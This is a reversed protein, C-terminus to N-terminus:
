EEATRLITAVSGGPLPRGVIAATAALLVAAALYVAGVIAWPVVLIPVPVIPAGSSGLLTSPVILWGLVLGVATGGAVGVGLLFAQEAVLWTTLQRGSLGLARLLAFETLRERVSVSAAVIFGVIAFAAAALSGLLLAGLTGLGIPDRELASLVAARDVVAQTHFPPSMVTSAVQASAGPSTALWWESASTVSGDAVYRDVALTPGDIIAFPTGPDITPFEPSHGVIRLSLDNGASRVQVTQDVTSGSLALLGDSAVAPISAEAPVDVVFRLAVDGLIPSDTSALLSVVGTGTAIVREQDFSDKERWAWDSATGLDVPAWSGADPSRSTDLGSVHISGKIPNSSFFAGFADRMTVELGILMRPEAPATPGAAEGGNAGGPTVGPGLPVVFSQGRGQFLASEQSVLPNFRAIGGDADRVVASVEIGRYDAPVKTTVTHGAYDTVMIGEETLAADLDIRLWRAGDPLPVGAVDPRAAALAALAAPLESAEPGPPLSAVGTLTRTDPELLVGSRVVQGVALDRRVVAAAGTVGPIARYATGLAWDPLSTSAAPMVRVDAGAQYAAQDAHSAAWTAAYVAGFTGLATALMLLLAARTYRLPRRAVQRAALPSVLGTARGLIREGIEGLRPVLRTALLGGAVLGFAPAAVLLPDLGLAGGVGRTFPSGYTRLQWVVVAAVAILAVDIGLRQALTRAVPRGLLARIGALEAGAGLAPLALVITEVLGTAGAAFLTSPNATADAVAGTTALPGFRGVLGVVAAALFPAALAAPIALLAAEGFGLALVHGTSAGRSRLLGIEPRRRDALMGAVLLVAYAAVIAFQLTLVLVAGRAIQLSRSVSALVTDLGDTRAAEGRPFLGRLQDSLASLRTRLPEIDDATLRDLAPVAYWRAGLNAFPEALLDSRDVVYPGQYTAGNLLASGNLDLADGAWTPDGATPEYLGTIVVTVLARNPDSNPSAADALPVTAGITLALARAAAQSLVAQVPVHGPAPWAGSVLHSRAGVDDDSELLTLHQSATGAALGTPVLSTSRLELGITGGPGGLAERLAAKITADSDAVQAPPLNSAIEVGQDAAAVGRIAARLSGVAVADGYLIGSALLTTACALLLWVGLLFRWDARIRGRALRWLGLSWTAASSLTSM